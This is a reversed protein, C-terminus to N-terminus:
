GVNFGYTHAIWQDATGSSGMRCQGNEEVVARERGGSGTRKWWQGNEEVTGSLGDSGQIDRDGDGATLHSM